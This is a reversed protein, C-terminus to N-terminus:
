NNKAAREILRKVRDEEGTECREIYAAQRDIFSKQNKYIHIIQKKLEEFCGTDIYPCAPCKEPDLKFDCNKFATIIEEYKM